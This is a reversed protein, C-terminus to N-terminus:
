FLKKLVDVKPILLIGMWKHRGVSFHVCKKLLKREKRKTRVVSSWSFHFGKKESPHHSKCVPSTMKLIRWTLKIVLHTFQQTKSQVTITYCFDLFVKLQEILWKWVLNCIAIFPIFPLIKRSLQISSSKIYFNVWGLIVYSDASSICDVSDTDYMSAGVDKKLQQFEDWTVKVSDHFKKVKM